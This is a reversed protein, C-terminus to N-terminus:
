HNTLGVRCLHIETWKNKCLLKLEPISTLKGEHRNMDKWLMEIPHLDLSQSLIKLATTKCNVSVSVNEELIQKDESDESAAFCARILITGGDHKTSLILNKHKFATNRDDSYM